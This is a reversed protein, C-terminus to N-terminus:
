CPGTTDGCGDAKGRLDQYVNAAESSPVIVRPIERRRKAEIGSRGAKGWM